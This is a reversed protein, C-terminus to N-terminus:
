KSAVASAAADVGIAAQGDKETYRDFVITKGFKLQMWAPYNYGKGNNHDIIAGIGGGFLINGYMGGSARSIARAVAQPSNPDTCVIDLDKGSRHVSIMEGSKGTFNGYDNSLRCEVGKVETGDAKLTEVRIPQNSENIISACGTALVSLALASLLRTKM